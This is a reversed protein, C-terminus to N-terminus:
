AVLRGGGDGIVSNVPKFNDLWKSDIVLAPHKYQSDGTGRGKMVGEMYRTWTGRSLRLLRWAGIYKDSRKGSYMVNQGILDRDVLQLLKKALEDDPLCHEEVLLAYYPPEDEPRVPVATFLDINLQLERIAKGVATAVQHESIKEGEMDSCNSLKQLFEIMPAQGRYGTCRVLDGIDYRYLGSSTTMLIYYDHGPTLEHAELVVPTASGREEVPIFEYYNAEVALVGEPKGDELPMSHRGETSLLGVDRAPIEGYFQTLNRSQHGVTGGIWCNLLALPWFDKPYLRGTREIVQELERARRPNPKRIRPAWKERLETPIDLASWLTGDRVDRILQERHQDSIQALRLLNAPTITVIMGVRKMIAMRLLSYYKALSDQVTCVDNPAAYFWQLIPDQYRAAVSSVMGIDLGSATRGLNPPGILQLIKTGIMHAHDAIAKVGWVEWDRKYEKLWTTTVPNLKPKGTTGTTCAFMLVKESPPFLASLDGSAVADIYPSLYDYQSIPVAKRFDAVTKIKDFGHTKGFKSSECRRIKSFLARQQAARGEALLKEFRRLKIKYIPVLAHRAFANVAKQPLDSWPM